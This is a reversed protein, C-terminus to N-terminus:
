AGSIKIALVLGAWALTIVAIAWFRWPGCQVTNGLSKDRRTQSQAVQRRKFQIGAYQTVAVIALTPAVFLSLGFRGRDATSWNLTQALAVLAAGVVAELGVSIATLVAWVKAALRSGEAFTEISVPGGAALRLCGALASRDVRDRQAFPRCAAAPLWYELSRRFWPTAVSRDPGGPMYEAM